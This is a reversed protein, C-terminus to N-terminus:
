KNSVPSPINAKGYWQKIVKEAIKNQPTFDISIRNWRSESRQLMTTEYWKWVFGGAFWPEEWFERFLAEYANSQGLQNVNGSNHFEWPKHACSDISRYGYETFLIPKKIKERFDIIDDHHKEWGEQLEEVSPTTKSCVPFYADIGVYDLQQWYPFRHFEDWNAAYTLQGKYINKIETILKKWFDPRKEVFKEWETGICLMEVNLSDAQRAFTLIFDRYNTEWAQWITDNPMEVQGTYEGRRFWVQPKLMVKIGHKRANEVCGAVGDAREGWWQRPYNFGLSGSEKDGFAFPMLCIWGANVSKVSVFAQSDVPNVPAVYSLGTIKEVKQESDNTKPNSCDTFGFIIALLSGLTLWSLSKLIFSSCLFLLNLRCRYDTKIWAIRTVQRNNEVIAVM